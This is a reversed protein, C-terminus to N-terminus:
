STEESLLKGAQTITRLGCGPRGARGPVRFMEPRLRDAQQKERATPRQGRHIGRGEINAVPLHVVEIKSARVYRELAPFLRM